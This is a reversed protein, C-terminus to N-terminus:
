RQLTRFLPLGHIELFDDKTEEDDEGACEIEAEEDAVNVLGCQVMRHLKARSDGDIQDSGM